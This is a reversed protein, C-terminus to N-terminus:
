PAVRPASKEAEHLWGIKLRMSSGHASRSPRRRRVPVFCAIEKSSPWVVDGVNVDVHFTLRASALECPVTIRVGSYVDQERITQASLSGYRFGDTRPEQVVAEVLRQVTSPENTIGSASLDVDRTPRRVDYAQLLMGGKLVMRARLPSSALRDLFAELAYLQLLEGTLRGQARAKQRLALYARGAETHHTPSKTM